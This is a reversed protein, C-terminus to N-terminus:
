NFAADTGVALSAIPIVGICAPSLDLGYLLVGTIPTPFIRVSDVAGYADAM